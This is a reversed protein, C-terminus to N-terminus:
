HRHETARWTLGAECCPCGLRKLNPVVEETLKDLKHRGAETLRGGPMLKAKCQPCLMNAISEYEVGLWGREEFCKVHVITDGESSGCNICTGIHTHLRAGPRFLRNHIM